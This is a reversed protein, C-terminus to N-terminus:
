PRVRRRAFLAIAILAMVVALTAFVSIWRSANGEGDDGPNKAAVPPTPAAPSPEAAPPPPQAATPSASGAPAAASGTVTLKTEGRGLAPVASEAVVTWTGPPLPRELALVGPQGPVAVLRLPGLYQGDESTAMATAAIRETVPHKDKAWRGAAWVKGTGDGTVAFDITGDHAAAPSALVAGLVAALATGLLAGFLAALLPGAM